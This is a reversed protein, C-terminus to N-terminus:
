RRAGRETMRAILAAFREAVEREEVLTFGRDTITAV